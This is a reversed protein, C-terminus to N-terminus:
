SAPDGSRFARTSAVSHVSATEEPLVASFARRVAAEISVWDGRDARLSAAAALRPSPDGAILGRCLSLLGLDEEGGAVVFARSPPLGLGRLIRQLGIAQDVGGAVISAHRPGLRFVAIAGERWWPEAIAAIAADLAPPEGELGIRVATGRVKPAELPGDAGHLAIAVGGVEVLREFVASALDPPIPTARLLRREAGTRLTAGLDLVLPGTFELRRLMPEIAALGERSCLVAEIGHERWRAFIAAIAEGESSGVEGLASGSVVVAAAASFAPSPRPSVAQRPAGADIAPSEADSPARPPRPRSSEASAPSQPSRPLERSTAQPTPVASAAEARIPASSARTAQSSRASGLEAAIAARLDGHQWAFGAALLKAPVAMRSGRMSRILGGGALELLRRPLRIARHSLAARLSSRWEAAPSAEPATLHLPGALREDRLALDVSRLFDAWHIWPVRDGSRWPTPDIGRRWWPAIERLFGAEADLVIPIRLAVARTSAGAARLAEREWAIAVQALFDRGAPSSEDLPEARDGPLFGIGSASVLVAPPKAATRVAFAVQYTGELRSRRISERVAATWRRAAIPEGALHVVADCGGVLRQWRGPVSPDGEAVELRPNSAAAFLRRAEDPRRSLVVLSDGRSLRDAVLRRGLGGTAGTIFIRRTATM